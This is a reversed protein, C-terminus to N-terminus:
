FNDSLLEGGARSGLAGWVGFPSLNSNNPNVNPNGADINETFFRVSGDGMVGQAGGPHRSSASFWGNEALDSGDPRRNCTPSNPPLVTSFAISGPCARMWNSGPYWSLQWGTAPQYAPRGQCQAPATAGPRALEDGDLCSLCWGPNPMQFGANVSNGKPDFRNGPNGQCMEAVLITNSAGDLMDDVGYADLMSFAGDSNSAWWNDQWPDHVVFDPAVTSYSGVNVKYSLRGMGNVQPPQVDSPCQYFDFEIEEISHRGNWVNFNDGPVNREFDQIFNMCVEYHPAQELYPLVRVTWATFGRAGVGDIVYTNSGQPFMDYVDHYNHMALGIQKLNNKCQARRAAERAQQVAPLLIAVLIAIIAIVVLLEILTFASRAKRTRLSM